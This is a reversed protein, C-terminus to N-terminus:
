ISMNRYLLIRILLTYNSLHLYQKVQRTFDIPQHIKIGRRIEDIRNFVNIIDRSRRPHEEAKAACFLAAMSLM